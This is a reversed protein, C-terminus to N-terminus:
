LGPLAAPELFGLAEELLGRDGALAVQGGRAGVPDGRWNAVQGGAGALVPIAAEIDWAKLGAEV